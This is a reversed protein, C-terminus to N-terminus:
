DQMCKRLSVNSRNLKDVVCQDVRQEGPYMQPYLLSERAPCTKKTDKLDSTLMLLLHHALIQPGTWADKLFGQDVVVTYGLGQEQECMGGYSVGGFEHGTTQTKCDSSFQNFVLFVVADCGYGAVSLVDQTPNSPSKADPDHREYPGKWAFRLNNEGIMRNAEFTLENIYQKVGELTGDGWNPNCPVHSTFIDNALFYCLDLNRARLRTSALPVEDEQTLNVNASRTPSLKLGPTLTSYEPKVSPQIISPQILLPSQPIIRTNYLPHSPYLLSVPSLPYTPYPIVVFGISSQLTFSVLVIVQFIMTFDTM